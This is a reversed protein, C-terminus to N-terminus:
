PRRRAGRARRRLRRALLPFPFCDAIRRADDDSLQRSDILAACAWRRDTPREFEDIISFADDLSAPYGRRLVAVAARRRAWPEPFRSLWARIAATDLERDEELARRLAAFRAILSPSTESAATSGLPIRPPKEVAPAPKEAVVEIAEVPELVAAEFPAAPPPEPTHRREVDPDPDLGPDMVSEPPQVPAVAAGPKPAPQVVAAEKGTPEDDKVAIPEDADAEVEIPEEEDPEDEDPSRDLADLGGESRKERQELGRLGRVLGDLTLADLDEVDNLARLVDAPTIDKAGPGLRELVSEFGRVGLRVGLERRESPTLRAVRRWALVVRKMRQVPSRVDKIESLLTQLERAGM